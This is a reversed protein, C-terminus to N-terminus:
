YCPWQYITGTYPVEKVEDNYCRITFKSQCRQDGYRTRYDLPTVAFYYQPYQRQYRAQYEKAVSECCYYAIVGSSRGNWSTYTLRFILVSVEACSPTGNGGGGGNGGGSGGGGGPNGPSQNMCINKLVWQKTCLNAIGYVKQGNSCGSAADQKARALTPYSVGIWRGKPYVGDIWIRFCAEQGNATSALQTLTFSLVLSALLRATYSKM